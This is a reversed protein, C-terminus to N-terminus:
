KITLTTGEGLPYVADTVATPPFTVTRKREPPGSWTDRAPVKLKSTLGSPWVVAGTELAVSLEAGGGTDLGSDM